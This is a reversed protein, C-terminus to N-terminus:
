PAELGNALLIAVGDDSLLFGIFATALDPQQAETLAAVHYENTTDIDTPLAIGEVLTSGFVDSLYVLGVDLDGNGIKTVLSRVNPEQTDVAPVVGGAELVLAALRGCPVAPACLGVFLETRALDELSEVGAPNGSAVAIVLRNRAFVDSRTAAGGDIVDRMTAQDATALVDAPAGQLIQERLASSGGLNLVVSVGANQAEFADAVDGFADTLSSAASVILQREAPGAACATVMLALVLLRRIM